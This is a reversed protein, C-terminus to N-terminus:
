GAAPSPSASASPTVGGVIWNEAAGEPDVKTLAFSGYRPNVTVDLHKFTDILKAVIPTNATADLGNINTLAQSAQLAEVAPESPSVLTTSLTTRADDASAGVGAKNAAEVLSPGVILFYLVQDQRIQRKDGFYAQIDATGRQVDAETIRRGGVVAAAGATPTGCGSVLLPVALAVAAVVLRSRKVLSGRVVPRLVSRLRDGSGTM